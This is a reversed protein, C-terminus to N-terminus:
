AFHCLHDGDASATSTRGSNPDYDLVSDIIAAEMTAPDHAVYTVTFTAPDFFAAIEPRLAADDRARLVQTMAAELVPDHSTMVNRWNMKM